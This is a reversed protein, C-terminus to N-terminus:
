VGAQAVSGSGIEFIFLYIKFSQTSFQCFLVDLSGEISLISLVSSWKTGSITCYLLDVIFYSSSSLPSSTFFSSSSLSLFLLLLLLAPLFIM